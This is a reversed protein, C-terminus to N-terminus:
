ISHTEYSLPKTNKSFVLYNVIQVLGLILIILNFFTPIGMVEFINVWSNLFYISVLGLGSFLIKNGEILINEKYIQLFYIKESINETVIKESENTTELIKLKPNEWPKTNLINENKISIPEVIEINQEAYVAYPTSAGLLLTGGIISSNSINNM